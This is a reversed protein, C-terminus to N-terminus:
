FPLDEADDPQIDVNETQDFADATSVPKIVNPEFEDEDWESFSQEELDEFRMYKLNARVVCSFAEGGRYKAITFECQGRTPSREDDDWEYIKYYEPRLMFIVIDADQELAGSERLDSLIPRKMGGRNEVARSLQSLAMIPIELNKATAKISSSIYSIEQERNGSSVKGGDKMLQLYDIYIMKVGKKRVMEGAETKFQMPTLNGDDNIYIPLKEFDERKSNMLAKEEQSVTKNKIKNSDIGCYEALMREGLQKASMELSFIGVPIGLMAQHKAENLFYATKGMGPRAAVLILDPSQFGNFQKQFKTLKSPVGAQNRTTEEFIEDSVAKFDSAPKVLLWKSLDGIGRQTYELLDFIDTSDDYAAEIMSNAFKITERCTYKQMLIRSHHEIHASSSIKQTLEILYFDGGAIELKEQKKLKDSVTLLDVPDSNEFLNLIADYILQHKEKYFIPQKRIIKVAHNVGDPDILMAGLVREELDTAQPPIKGKELSMVTTHAVQNQFYQKPQTNQSM